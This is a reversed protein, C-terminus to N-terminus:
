YLTLRSGNPIFNLYLTFSLVLNVVVVQRLTLIYTYTTRTLRTKHNVKYKDTVSQSVELFLSITM